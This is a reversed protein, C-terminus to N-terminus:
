GLKVVSLGIIPLAFNAPYFGMVHIVQSNLYTLLYTFSKYLASTELLIM